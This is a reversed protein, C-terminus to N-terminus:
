VLIELDQNKKLSCSPFRGLEGYVAVISTPKRVGLIPKLFRIHVKEVDDSKYFGFEFKFKLNLNLNRQNVCYVVFYVTLCSCAICM